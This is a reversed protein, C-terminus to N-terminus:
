ENRINNNTGDRHKEQDSKIQRTLRELCIAKGKNM